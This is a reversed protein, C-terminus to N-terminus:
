PEVLLLQIPPQQSNLPSIGALQSLQQSPHEFSVWLFPEVESLQNFVQVWKQKFIQLFDFLDV